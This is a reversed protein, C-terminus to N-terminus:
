SASPAPAEPREKKLLDRIETLLEQDKTLPPPVAAEEKKARMLWGLFKVIFVFLVLAILLFNVVEGIFKGYKIESGHLTVSWGEYGREGTGLVAGILPMLINEVLSSIIKGFAAGIIVGVALDTVNGKFAFKKFEDFLSFAKRTAPLSAFKDLPDM